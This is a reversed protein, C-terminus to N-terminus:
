LRGAPARCFEGPSAPQAIAGPGTSSSVRRHRPPEGVTRGPRQYACDFARGIPANGRAHAQRMKNAPQQPTRCASAALHREGIQAQTKRFKGLDFAPPSPSFVNHATADQNVFDVTTGQLVPLVQPSFHLHLQKMRARAQPPATEDPLDDAYVVAPVAREGM